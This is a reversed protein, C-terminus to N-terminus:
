KYSKKILMYATIINICHVAMIWLSTHANDDTITALFANYLPAISSKCFLKIHLVNKQIIKIPYLIKLHHMVVKLICNLFQFSKVSYNDQKIIFLLLHVNISYKISKM